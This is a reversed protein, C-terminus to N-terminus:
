AVNTHQAPNTTLQLPALALTELPMDIGAGVLPRYAAERLEFGLKIHDREDDIWVRLQVSNNYDNLAM